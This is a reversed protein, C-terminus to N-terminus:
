KIDFRDLMMVKDWATVFDAVFKEMSDSTAYVEALARLQSNSAFILDSRSVGAPVQGPLLRLLDAFFRNSLVGRQLARIGGVLVTMEPATLGMLSAKDILLVEVPQTVSKSTFDRFGDAKPELVAFSHVDTQVQTADGRGGTFPVKIKVGAKKAASEVAAIGGLVILDAM